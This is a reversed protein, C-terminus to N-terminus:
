TPQLGSQAAQCLYVNWQPYRLLNVAPCRDKLAQEQKSDLLKESVVAGLPNGDMWETHSSLFAERKDVDQFWDPVTLSRRRSHFAFASNWDDDFVLIDANAPTRSQILAGIDLRVSEKALADAFYRSTGKFAHLSGVSFLLVLGLSTAKIVFSRNSELLLSGAAGLAALVYIQNASQYYNHQIHLNTFMLLPLFALILCAAIFHKQQRNGKTAFGLCILGIAPLVGIPTLMRQIVVGDWLEPSFRQLPPGFNWRQLAKSTLYSGIPNFQKLSDAHHTWTRLLFFGLALGAAVLVIGQLAKRSPSASRLLAICRSALDLGILLFAPLATTAKVLLAISLTFAFAGYVGLNTFADGHQDGVGQLTSRPRILTYLYLSLLTFFLATTEIMFGRNWYLYISATLYLIVFISQGSRSVGYLRMINISPWICALGFLISVLRGCASLPIPAFRSVLSVIWQYLPFEFPISWPAGLVPTEYNLLGSLGPQLFLSTLATQTQRFEHQDILPQQLTALWFVAALSGVLIATYKLFKELGPM